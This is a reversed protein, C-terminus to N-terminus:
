SPILRGGTAAATNNTPKRRQMAPIKRVRVTGNDVARDDADSIDMRTDLAAM